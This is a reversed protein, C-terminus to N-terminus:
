PVAGSTALDDLVSERVDHDDLQLVRRFMRMEPTARVPGGLSPLEDPAATAPDVHVGSEANPVANAVATRLGRKLARTIPNVPTTTM